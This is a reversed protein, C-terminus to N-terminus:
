KLERKVHYPVRPVGLHLGEPYVTAIQNLQRGDPGFATIWPTQLDQIMKKDQDYFCTGLTVAISIPSGTLSGSTLTAGSHTMDFRIALQTPNETAFPTVHHDILENPAIQWASVSQAVESKLSQDLLQTISKIDPKLEDHPISSLYSDIDGFVALLLKQTHIEASLQPHLENSTAWFAKDDTILVAENSRAVDVITEWIVSDRFQEERHSPPVHLIVRQVASDFKSHDKPSELILPSLRQLRDSIAKVLEGEVPWKIGPKTGTLAQLTVLEREIRQITTQCEALVREEVECRVIWPLLIQSKTNKLSFLFAAAVSSRLLREKIWVNADLCILREM